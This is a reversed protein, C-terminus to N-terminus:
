PDAVLEVLTGLPINHTLNANDERYTNGTDPNILDAVNVIQM